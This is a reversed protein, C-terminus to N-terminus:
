KPFTTVLPTSITSHSTIIRSDGPFKLLNLQSPDAIFPNKPAFVGSYIFGFITIMILILVEVSRLTEEALM